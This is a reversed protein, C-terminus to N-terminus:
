AATSRVWHLAAVDCTAPQESPELEDGAGDSDPDGDTHQAQRELSELWTVFSEDFRVGATALVVFLRWIVSWDEVEIGDSDPSAIVDLAALFLAWARGIKQARQHDVDPTIRNTLEKPIQSLM